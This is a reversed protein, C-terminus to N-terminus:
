QVIRRPARNMEARAAANLMVLWLFAILGLVLDIPQM